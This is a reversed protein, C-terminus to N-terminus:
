LDDDDDDPQHYGTVYSIWRERLEDIIQQSYTSPAKDFYKDPIVKQRSEIIEIMYRSVYYGCDKSGLPQRPCQLLPHFFLMDRNKGGLIIIKRNIITQAFERPENVAGAPDLWHVLGIWPCIVALM